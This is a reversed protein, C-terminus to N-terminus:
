LLIPRETNLFSSPALLERSPFPLYRLNRAGEANGLVAHEINSLREGRLSIYILCRVDMSM